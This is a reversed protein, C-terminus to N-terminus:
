EQVYSFCFYYWVPQEAGTFKIIEGTQLGRSMQLNVAWSRFLRILFGSSMNRM